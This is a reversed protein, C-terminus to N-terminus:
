PVRARHNEETCWGRWLCSHWDREAHECVCQGCQRDYDSRANRRLRNGVTLRGWDPVVRYTWEGNGTQFESEMGDAAIPGTDAHAHLDLLAGASAVGALGLFRRRGAVALKLQSGVKSM